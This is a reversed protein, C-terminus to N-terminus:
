PARRRLARVASRLALALAAILLGTLLLAYIPVVTTTQTVAEGYALEYVSQRYNRTQKIIHIEKEPVLANVLYAAIATRHHNEFVLRRQSRSSPLAAAFELQIEGQGRQMEEVTSSRWSALHLVVPTDDLTVFLDSLVRMGYNRGESESIAADRNTDISDLVTTAVAVGPALRMSLELRGASVLLTTAQLYEDVRHAASPTAAALVMVGAIALARKM